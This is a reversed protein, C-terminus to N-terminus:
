WLHIPAGGRAITIIGAVVAAAVVGDLRDFVGGHGPILRGSDKAGFRRKYASEALDGAQAALAILMALPALILEVHGLTAASFGMSVIAALAGGGILGAWTKNPSVRPWLKPGGILRGSAYAGVDTAVVVLMLWLISHFGHTQDTRIGVLVIAAFGFYLTFLVSWGPSRGGILDRAGGAFAFGVLVILATAPSGFETASAAGAIALVYLMALAADPRGLAITRTEFMMLAGALAVLGMSWVGGAYFASLSVAAILLGSATRPALDGFGGRQFAGAM